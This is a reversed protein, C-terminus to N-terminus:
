VLERIAEASYPGYVHTREMEGEERHAEYIEIPDGSIDLARAIGSDVMDVAYDAGNTYNQLSLNMVNLGLADLFTTSYVSIQIRAKSLIQMLDAEKGKVDCQPHEKLHAYKQPEKEYPHLKVLVKWDPHKEELIKLLGETYSVYEDPMNKQAGIFVLNEKPEGAYQKWGASGLSYDGVVVLSEETHEGGELLIEKWYEGFLMLKDPFLAKKRVPGIDKRYGYYLDQKAILGHQIEITKVGNLKAAAIMGERHYHNTFFFTKTGNTRFFHFYRHFEEFFVHFASSLFEPAVWKKSQNERLLQTLEKLVKKEERHLSENSYAALLDSTIDPTLGSPHPHDCVISIKENELTHLIKSLYYSVRTGDETVITRGDDMFLIPQLKTGVPAGRYRKLRYILSQVALPLHMRNKILKTRTETLEYSLAHQFVKYYNFISGSVEQPDSIRERIASNLVSFPLVPM